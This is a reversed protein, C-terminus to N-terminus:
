FTKDLGFKIAVREFITNGALYPVSTEFEGYHTYGVLHAYEHFLNSAISLPTSFFKRNIFISFPTGDFYGVVSSYRKYYMVLKLDMTGDADTFQCDGSLLETLIEENTKGKTETFKAALFRERYLDSNVVQFIIEEAKKIKEIDSATFGSTDLIKVKLKIGSHTSPLEHPLSEGEVQDTQTSEPVQQVYGFGFLRKIFNWIRM